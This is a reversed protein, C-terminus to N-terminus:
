SDSEDGQYIPKKQRVHRGHSSGLTHTENKVSAAEDDDDAKRRWLAGCVSDRSTKKLTEDCECLVARHKHRSISSPYVSAACATHPTITYFLLVLVHTCSAYKIIGVHLLLAASIYLEYKEKQNQNTFDANCTVVNIILLNTRISIECLIIIISFQFYNRSVCLHM